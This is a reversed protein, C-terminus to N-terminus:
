VQGSKLGILVSSMGVVNSCTSEVCIDRPGHGLVHHSPMVTIINDVRVCGRELQREETKEEM